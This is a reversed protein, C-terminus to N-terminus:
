LSSSRVERTVHVSANVPFCADVYLKVKKKDLFQMM